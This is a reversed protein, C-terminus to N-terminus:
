VLLPLSLSHSLNVVTSYINSIFCNRGVLPIKDFWTPSPFIVKVLTDMMEDRLNLAEVFIPPSYFLESHSPIEAQEGSGAENIVVILSNKESVERQTGNLMMITIIRKLMFHITIYVVSNISSLTSFPPSLTLLFSLFACRMGFLNDKDSALTILLSM